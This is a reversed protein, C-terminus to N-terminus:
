DPIKTDKIFKNHSAKYSKQTEDNVNKTYQSNWYLDDNPKFGYFEHVKKQIETVNEGNWNQGVCIFGTEIDKVINSEGLTAHRNEIWTLREILNM